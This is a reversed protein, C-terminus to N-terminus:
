IIKLQSIKINIVLCNNFNNKYKIAYDYQIIIYFYLLIKNTSVLLFTRYLYIINIYMLIKLSFKTQIYCNVM